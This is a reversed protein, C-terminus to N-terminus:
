NYLNILNKIGKSYSPESKKITEKSSIMDKLINLRESRESQKIFANLDYPRLITFKSDFEFEINNSETLKLHTAGDILLIFNIFIFLIILLRKKKRLIYM